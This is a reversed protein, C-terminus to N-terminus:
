GVKQNVQSIVRVLKHKYELKHDVLVGFDKM